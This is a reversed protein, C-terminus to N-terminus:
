ISRLVALRTYRGVWGAVIVQFRCETPKGSTLSVTTSVVMADDTPRLESVEFGREVARGRGSWGVSLKVRRRIELEQGAQQAQRPARAGAGRKGSEAKGGTRALEAEHQKGDGNRVM